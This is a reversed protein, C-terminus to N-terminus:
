STVRFEWTYEEPNLPEPQDARWYVIRANHNGTEFAEISKGPGPYFSYQGLTGDSEMQDEPIQVGNIYLRGVYGEDLNVSIEASPRHLGGPAPSVSEVGSTNPRTQSTDSSVVAIVFLIVVLGLLGSVIIIRNRNKAAVAAM